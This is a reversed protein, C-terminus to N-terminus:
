RSTTRPASLPGAWGTPNELLVHATSSAPVDLRKETSRRTSAGTVKAQPSPSHMTNEVSVDLVIPGGAYGRIPKVGVAAIGLPPRPPDAQGIRTVVMGLSAVAVAGWLRRSM